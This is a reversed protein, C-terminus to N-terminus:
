CPGWSNIMILLDVTNVVTDQNLDAPCPYPAPPTCAGWANILMLLDSVGVTGDFDIDTPKYLPIEVMDMDVPLSKGHEVWLDYAVQGRNDTVNADRLFEVFERSTLQYYTTVVVKRALPPIAVFTDDWNQGDPYTTGVSSTQLTTAVTNFHGAPPIRNDKLITNALMFHFTPGEPLGLSQAYTEGQIGLKIEYVKTDNTTLTGTEFDYHGHEVVIEDNCDLFKVNLWVRRGDPFGTPLKHGTMNFIRARINQGQRVVTLDTARQLFDINREIAAAVSEPSLNTESDPFDPKSNGDADVTRVANLVWTNSGMFSHQPVDPRPFFPEFELNCGYGDVRPMHCEQCGKIVGTPHNGGFRGFHQVGITSYYSNKWESYTRHLPLMETQEGTIHRENLANLSYQDPAVKSMLPNSVDHCTWCFEAHSHFPSYVIEPTPTGPHVNLPIDDFPGRRVDTPDVIYRANTAQPPMLGATQLDLLIQEDQAPSENAVFTPNVLRHCFNCNLGEFDHGSMQSIDTIETANNLFAVPAHCRICFAGSDTAAQNAVTLAAHFLPDRASQGMMSAAWPTFTQSQLFPDESGHNAHCFVCDNASLLPTLANPLGAGQPQTGKQFYDELTTPLPISVGGANQRAETPTILSIGVALAMVPTLLRLLSARTPMRHLIM